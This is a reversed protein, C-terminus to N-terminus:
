RYRVKWGYPTGGMVNVRAIGSEKAVTRRTVAHLRTVGCVSGVGSAAAGAAAGVGVASAAGVVGAGVV